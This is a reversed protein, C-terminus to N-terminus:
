GSSALGKRDQHYFSSERQETPKRTALLITIRVGEFLNSYNVLREYAMFLYFLIANARGYSPEPELMTIAPESLGAMRCLERLKRRSNSRFWTRYPDHADDDLRRLRNAILLHVSHPLLKAGISVYHFLNPTRLCYVGGPCLVRKVERFHEVPHEVHELVWNSVCADFTADEFPMKQGDYVVAQSLFTNNKVDPDIDLGTVDGIESLTKTCENTPGAGIELIKSHPAINEQCLRFFPVTGGEFRPKPYYRDYLAQNITM